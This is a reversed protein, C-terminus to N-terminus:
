EFVKAVVHDYFDGPLILGLLVQTIFPAFAALLCVVTLVVLLVLNTCLGGDRFLGADHRNGSYPGDAFVIIGDPFVISQYKLAHIHKHGNYYERQNRGPKCIPRVTGDIFGVCNDLISVKATNLACMEDLYSPTLREWDFSLLHKCKECVFDSAFNFIISLASKSRGFMDKMATFHTPYSVRRLLILFGEEGSAKYRFELNVQDPFRFLILLKSVDAKTYRFLVHFDGDEFTDM